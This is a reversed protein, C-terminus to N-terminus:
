FIDSRCIVDLIRGLRVQGVENDCAEYQVYSVVLDYLVSM